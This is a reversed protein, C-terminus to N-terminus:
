AIAHVSNVLCEGAHFIPLDFLDNYSVYDLTQPFVSYGTCGAVTPQAQGVEVLKARAHQMGDSLQLCADGVKCPTLDLVHQEAPEAFGGFIHAAVAVAVTVANASSVRLCAGDVPLIRQSLYGRQWRSAHRLTLLSVWYFSPISFSWLRDRGM